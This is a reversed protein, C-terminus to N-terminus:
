YLKISLILCWEYRLSRLKREVETEELNWKYFQKLNASINKFSVVLTVPSKIIIQQQRTIHATLSLSCVFRSSYKSSHTSKISSAILLPPATKTWQMTPLDLLYVKSKKTKYELLISHFVQHFSYYKYTDSSVHKTAFRNIPFYISVLPLYIHTIKRQLIHLTFCHCRQQFSKIYISNLYM